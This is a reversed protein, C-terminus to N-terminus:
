VSGASQLGSVEDRRASTVGGQLVAASKCFWRPPLYPTAPPTPPQPSSGLSCCRPCAQCPDAGVTLRDFAPRVDWAAGIDRQDRALRRAPGCTPRAPSCSPRERARRAAHGATDVEAGRAASAGAHRDTPRDARGRAASTGARRDSPEGAPPSRALAGRALRGVSRRAPADAARPRASRSVSLRKRRFGRRARSRGESVPTGARRGRAPCELCGAAPSSLCGGRARTESGPEESRGSYGGYRLGHGPRRVRAVSLSRAHRLPRRAGPCPGTSRPRHAPARSEVGGDDVSQPGGGPLRCAAPGGASAPVHAPRSQMPRPRSRPRHVPAQERAPPAGHM